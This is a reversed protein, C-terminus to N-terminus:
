RAIYLNQVYKSMSFGASCQRNFSSNSAFTLDRICSRPILNKEFKVFNNDNCKGSFDPIPIQFYGSGSSVLGYLSSNSFAAISDNQDYNPDRTM